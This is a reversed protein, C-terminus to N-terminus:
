LFGRDAPAVPAKQRGTLHNLVQVLRTLSVPKELYARVGIERCIARYRTDASIMVVQTGGRALREKQERILDTGRERGMHIDCLFVGFRDRGLLDRAEQLTAAEHVVYGANRLVKTYVRRQSPDDEMLLVRHPLVLHDAGTVAARRRKNKGHEKAVQRIISLLGTRMASKAVFADAGAGLAAERFSRTNVMTLAIIGVGPLLRRLYPITELGALGPMVLDVLIVQPRLEQAQELAVAGGRATGVVDVGGRAELFRTAARLFIPNDDVLMVSVPHM